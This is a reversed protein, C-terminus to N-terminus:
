FEVADAFDAETPPSDQRTSNKVHALVRLNGAVYGLAPRIRDITASQPDVGKLEHYRTKICFATFQEITLEFPKGREHAHTRLNDFLYVIPRRGRWQRKRCTHCFRRHKAAKRRCSKTACARNM